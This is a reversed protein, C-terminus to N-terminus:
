KSFPVSARSFIPVSPDQAVQIKPCKSRPVSPDQSEQIKPCKPCKSRPVSPDQFLQIKSCKFRPVSPDQFVQIESCKSRPVSPDQSVRIKSLHIIMKEFPYVLWVLMLCPSNHRSLVNSLLYLRIGFYRKLGQDNYIEHCAAVLRWARARM